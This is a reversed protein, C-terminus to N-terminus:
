RAKVLSTQPIKLYTVQTTKQFNLEGARDQIGGWFSAQGFSAELDRNQALLSKVEKNYSKILYSGQTLQNVGLIYLLLLAIMLVMALAYIAKFPIKLVHLTTIKRQIARYRLRLVATSM